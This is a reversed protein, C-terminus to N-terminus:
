DGKERPPPQHNFVLLSGDSGGAVDSSAQAEESGNSAGAGAPAENNQALSWRKGRLVIKGDGKLRSLQPSLSTRALEVGFRQKIYKLVENADASPVVGLVDLVMDKITMKNEDTARQDGDAQQQARKPALAAEAADLEALEAYIPEALASLKAELEARRKSIFDRIGTM